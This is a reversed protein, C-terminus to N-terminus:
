TTSDLGVTTLDLDSVAFDVDLPHSEGYRAAEAARAINM